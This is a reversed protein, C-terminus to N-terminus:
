DVEAGVGTPDTGGGVGARASERSTRADAATAAM